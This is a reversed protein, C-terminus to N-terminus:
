LSSKVWWYLLRHAEDQDPLGEGLRENNPSVGLSAGLPRVPSCKQEDKSEWESRGAPEDNTCVEGAFREVNGHEYEFLMGHCVKRSHHKPISMIDM